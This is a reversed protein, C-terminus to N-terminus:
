RNRLQQLDALPYRTNFRRRYERHVADDPFHQSPLYPYSSMGHFPLPEVTRAFATNADADKAWGDVLLLFDRQDGPGLPPLQNADFLLRLEDGSGMVVLRDDAETILERVGGYRTYLGPTPNWMTAPSWREYNFDEPRNRAPEIIARSFGRYRLDASEADLRTLRTDPPITKASLFIEDWYVCLNTVIRIERSKSLFKGTLDVAVSKPKGSPIGMDNLVTKWRGKKDKVQLYPFILGDHSEQAAARFTSGDAWDVWGNLVLIARNDAAVAGFDLDLYHLEAVGSSDHAFTDVYEGDTKLLRPLVDEGHNGRATAPYIRHEVGFLRFEPFPPAKFKDNTLITEGARHDVAILQIKDLYSVERLEETIRIEYHDDRKELSSGPIQIYERHNVPFYKGDGNSAGLPAVGLVDTIFKFSSGNWAFIMPCSGSLRPKEKYAIEHGPAQAIENQVMGNPWTIRVTDVVTYDRLGFVIPVGTYTRKQYWAGTKVEVVAGMAQKLNKVGELRVELFNNKTNTQNDLIQLDGDKTIAAIDSRGDGDFDATALAVAPALEGASAQELKGQGLNRYVKNNVVLDALSRNALDTLVLPGTADPLDNSEVLKGHDNILLRIGSATTVVLDTWGDNNIDFPQLASLGGWHGLVTQAEYKGLLKDHYIVLRGDDYEVAVDTETNDPILEFTAGDVAHGAVFPFSSTQDSFGATGDNRLLVSKKGLLLLDLDYDHDYDIWVARTFDGELLKAPLLEFKGGRNVYLSLGSRTIVALDALGDNNFDGAAVSVVDRIADLGSNPVAITGNKFLKIGNQSWALLDPRGDGDFDIVALGASKPDIGSAVRKLQFKFASAPSAHDFINDMEVVDYIEAYFSWEPDEPIAAGAKRKKSENFLELERAAEQSRGLERYANFLQIHPASFNPNLRTAAEFQELAPQAKGTLKYEIGLNYHTVPEDPVLKLMGEFQEVARQHDFEKKYAMGLNFWTHPISSDEKQAKILEQVAEQTKGARLLALGYNVRDRTSTPLLDLAQKFEQVAKIQTMPNEYYAKGLNRHRWVQERLNPPLNPGSFILAVTFLLALSKSLNM